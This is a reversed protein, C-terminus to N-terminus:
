RVPEGQVLQYVLRHVAKRAFIELPICLAVFFLAVMVITVASSLSPTIETFLAEFLGILFGIILLAAFTAPLFLANFTFPNHTCHLITGKDSEEFTIRYSFWFRGWHSTIELGSMKHPYIGTHWSVASELIYQGKDVLLMRYDATLREKCTEIDLPSLYDYRFLRKIVGLM